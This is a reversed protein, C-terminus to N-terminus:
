EEGVHSLGVARCLGGGAIDGCVSGGRMGMAHGASQVEARAQTETVGQTTEPSWCKRREAKKEVNGGKRDKM